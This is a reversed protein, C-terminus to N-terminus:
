KGNHLRGRAEDSRMKTRMVESISDGCAAGALCVSAIAVDACEIALETLDLRETGNRWRRLKRAVEGLEEQVAYVQIMLADIDQGNYFGRVQLSELIEEISM